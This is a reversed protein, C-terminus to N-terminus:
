VSFIWYSNSPLLDEISGYPPPAKDPYRPCSPDIHDTNSLQTNPIEIIFIHTHAEFACSHNTFHIRSKSRDQKKHM